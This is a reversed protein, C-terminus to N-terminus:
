KRGETKDQRDWAILQTKDHILISSQKTGKGFLWIRDEKQQTHKGM